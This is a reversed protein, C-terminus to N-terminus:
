NLKKMLQQTKLNQTSLYIKNESKFNYTLTQKKNAHYEQLAQTYLMKSWLLDTLKNMQDAFNNTDIQQFQKIMFNYEDIEIWSEFEIWLNQEYIAYFSTVSISKNM